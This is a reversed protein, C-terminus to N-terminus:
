GMSIDVLKQQTRVNSIALNGDVSQVAQRILSAISLPDSETRVELTMGGAHADLAPIVQAYSIYVQPPPDSRLDDYRTDKAVGVIELEGLNRSRKLNFRSGIPNQDKLGLKIFAQNVVAVHTSNAVDGSNLDRGLLVPINMTNLFGDKVALLHVRANPDPQVAAGSITLGAGGWGAGGLLAFESMSTSKVGPIGSIRESIRQYLSSLNEGKYGNMSPNLDLLLVNSTDFGADVRQLNALTRLSLGAGVLLVVSLAVQIAVLTKGLSLRARGATRVSSSEKLVPGPDIRTAKIAPAIGFLIGTAISIGATFALVTLDLHPDIGGADQWPLTVMLADKIWSALFLGAAGSALSLILSETLLQRILRIRGGGLAIRM